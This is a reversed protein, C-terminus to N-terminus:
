LCLVSVSNFLQKKYFFLGKVCGAGQEAYGIMEKVLGKMEKVLGAV